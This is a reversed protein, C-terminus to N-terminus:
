ILIENQMVDLQEAISLIVNDKTETNLTSLLHSAKKMNELLSVVEAETM